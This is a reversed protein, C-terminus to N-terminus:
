AQSSALLGTRPTQARIRRPSRSTAIERLLAATRAACEAASFEHVREFGRAILSRWLEAQHVLRDLHAALADVDGVPYLLGERGHTLIERTAPSDASVVATGMAMAELVVNPCGESRSPLVFVDCAAYFARMDRVFGVMQVPARTRRVLEVYESQRSGDGALLFTVDSRSAFRAAAAIFDQPRKQPALRGAFGIVIPRGSRTGEAPALQPDFQRHDLGNRIVTTPAGILPGFMREVSDGNCILHDPRHSRAWAALLGRTVPSCETGGARWVIPVGLARAVSTAAIWSFAMAAYIIEVDRERAIRELETRFRWICDAYRALLRVPGFM